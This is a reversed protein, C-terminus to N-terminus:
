PTIRDNHIQGSAIYLQVFTSMIKTPRDYTNVVRFVSDETFLKYLKFKQKQM